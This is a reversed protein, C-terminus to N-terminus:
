DPMMRLDDRGRLADLRACGLLFMAVTFERRLNEIAAGVAEASEEAPALFPAAIGGLEAGLVIAKALDLGTRLGGSAILTMKGALPRLRRLALPTPWGWDQFVYGLRGGVGAAERRRQEIRSWSTGGAGAIDLYRIGVAALRAADEPGIGAGVEKVIVPRTLAAALEGLIKTLGRFDTNGEPQVAEQLPNLHFCIGDAALTEVAQNAEAAGFGYNLQVAGLNALLPVDPALPRLDFSDRAGPHTFMVRQSGVALAVGARQAAVALNRNIKRLRASDGGSMASILLPFSLRRGLFTLSTDV